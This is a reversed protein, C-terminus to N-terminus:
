LLGAKFLLVRIGDGVLLMFSEMTGNANPTYPTSRRRTLRLKKLAQKFSRAGDTYFVKLKDLGNEGAYQVVSDAINESTKDKVPYSYLFRSAEDLLVQAVKSREVGHCVETSNTEYTDFMTRFGFHKPTVKKKALKVRRAQHRRQKAIRCYPCRCGYLHTLSQTYSRYEEEKNKRTRTQDVDDGGDEALNPM